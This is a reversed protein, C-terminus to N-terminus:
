LAFVPKDKQEFFFSCVYSVWCGLVSFLFSVGGWVLASKGFKKAYIGVAFFYSIFLAMMTLYFWILIEYKITNSHDLDDPLFASFMILIHFLWFTLDLFKRSPKM